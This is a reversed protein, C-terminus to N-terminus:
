MGPITLRDNDLTAMLSGQWSPPAAELRMGLRQLLNISPTNQQDTITVIRLLRMQDFAFQIM